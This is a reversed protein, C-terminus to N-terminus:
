AEAELGARFAAIGGALLEDASVMLINAGAERLAAAGFRGVLGGCSRGAAAARRFLDLSAAMVAPHRGRRPLGMSVALDGPGVQVGDVGPVGLIADLAGLGAVTEILPILVINGADPPDGAAIAAAVARAEAADGIEPAILGDVGCDLYRRILGPDRSWPRLVSAGGGARVARAMEAVREIGPGGHECDIFVLDFGAGALREALAPSPYDVGVGLVRERRALKRKLAGRAPNM